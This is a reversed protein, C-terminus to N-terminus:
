RTSRTVRCGRPITRPPVQASFYTLFPRFHRRVKGCRGRKPLGSRRSSTGPRSCPTSPSRCRSALPLRLQRSSWSGSKRSRSPGSCRPSGTTQSPDRAPLPPKATSASPPIPPRACSPPATPPARHQACVLSPRWVGECLRTSFHLTPPSSAIQVLELIQELGDLVILASRAQSAEHFARQLRQVREPEAVDILDGATIVKVFHFGPQTAVHAAIATKGVGAAGELLCRATIGAPGAIVRKAVDALRDAVAAHGGGLPFYGGALFRSEIVARDVKATPRVQELARSLDGMTVRVDGPGVETDVETAEDTDARSAYRDVAFSAANRVVGAIGAGTLRHSRRALEGVDVNPGLVKAALMPALHIDFIAKRGVRDPLGIEVQAEFRGPRLLAQLM